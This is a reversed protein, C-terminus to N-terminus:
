LACFANEREVQDGPDDRRAFPLAEFGPKNLADGGQIEEKVVDVVLLMDQLVARNGGVIDEGGPMEPPLEHVDLNGLVDINM